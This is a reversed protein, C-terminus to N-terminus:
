KGMKLKIIDDQLINTVAGLSRKSCIDGQINITAITGRNAPLQSLTRLTKGDLGWNQLGKTGPKQYEIPQKTIMKRTSRLLEGGSGASMCFFFLLYRQRPDGKRLLLQTNAAPGDERLLGGMGSSEFGVLSIAQGTKARARRKDITTAWQKLFLLRVPDLAYTDKLGLLPLLAAREYV